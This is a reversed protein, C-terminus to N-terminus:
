EDYPSADLLTEFLVPEFGPIHSRGFDAISSGMCTMPHRRRAMEIIVRKYDEKFRLRPVTRIVEDVVAPPVENPDVGLLDALMGHAVLAIEPRKRHAVPGTSHMAIADWVIEVREDDVGKSRLWQEAANAGDVEFPADAIFRETQGLDHCIAGLFFLESDFKLGRARGILEGIVFTRLVHNFVVPASEGRVFELTERALTTDPIDVGAISAPIPWDERRAELINGKPDPPYAPATM